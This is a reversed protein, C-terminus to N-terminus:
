PQELCGVRRLELPLALWAVVREAALGLDGAVQEAVVLALVVVLRPPM